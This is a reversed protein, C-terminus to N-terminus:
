QPSSSNGHNIEVGYKPVTASIKALDAESIPPPTTIEQSAPIGIEVFFHELGAPMLWLLMKASSSTKNSFTHTQGKYIHLFTGSKALIPKGDLQFEIEGELVYYAEDEQSHSHIPPPNNNPQISIEILTYANNTDQGVTKFTYLDGLVWYRDGQNPNKIFRIENSM